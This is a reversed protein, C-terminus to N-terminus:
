KALWKTAAPPVAISGASRSARRVFPALWVLGRMTTNRVSPMGVTPVVSGPVITRLMEAAACCDAGPPARTKANPTPSSTFV